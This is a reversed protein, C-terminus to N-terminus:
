LKAFTRRRGFRTKREVLTNSLASWRSFNTFNIIRCNAAYSRHSPWPEGVNWSISFRLSDPRRSPDCRREVEFVVGNADCSLLWQTLRRATIGAWRRFPFVKRALLWLVGVIDAALGALPMLLNMPTPQREQVAARWSQQVLKARTLQFEKESNRHVQTRRHENLSISRHPPCYRPSLLFM